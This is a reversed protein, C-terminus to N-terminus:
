KNEDNEASTQSEEISNEFSEEAEEYGESKSVRQANEELAAQKEAEERQVREIVDQIDEHEEEEVEIGFLAKVFNIIEGFFVLIILGILTLLGWPTVFFDYVSKLMDIKRLMKGTVQSTTIPTDEAPNDDGKTLLYYKGDNENYYPEKIVRHTVRKGAFQGSKGNYTIVDGDRLKMPDCKQCLIIDGVKLYPTMSASSVRYVTYGFLTPTEGNMRATLIVALLCLLAALIIVLITNKIIKVVKIVVKLPSKKEGSQTETQINKTKEEKKTNNTKM